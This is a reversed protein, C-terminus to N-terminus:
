ASAGDSVLLRLPGDPLSAPLAIPIRLNKASGRYPRVTAEVTITEGAHVDTSSTRAGELQMTRREPVAEVNSVDRQPDIALRTSIATSAPLASAGGHTGRRSERGPKRPLWGTIWRCRRSAKSM